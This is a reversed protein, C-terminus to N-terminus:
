CMENFVIRKNFAVADAIMSLADNFMRVPEPTKHFSKLAAVLITVIAETAFVPEIPKFIGAYRGKNYIDKIVRRLADLYASCIVSDESHIGRFIGQKGEKIRDTFIFRCLTLLLTDPHGEPPYSNFVSRVTEMTDRWAIEMLISEKSPFLSYLTKKSIHSLSAIDDVTTKRYGYKLFYDSAYELITNVVETTKIFSKPSM